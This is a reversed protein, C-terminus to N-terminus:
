AGAAVARARAKSAGARRLTAAAPLRRQQRRDHGPVLPRQDDLLPRAEQDRRLPRWARRRPPSGPGHRAGAPPVGAGHRVRPPIATRGAGPVWRRGSSSRATCAWRYRSTRTRGARTSTRGRSALPSRTAAGDRGAAAEGRSCLGPSGSRREVRRDPGPLGDLGARFPQEHLNVTVTGTRPSASSRARCRSRARTRRSAGCSSAAATRPPSAAADDGQPQLTTDRDHMPADRRVARLEHARRGGAAASVALSSLLGLANRTVRTLM